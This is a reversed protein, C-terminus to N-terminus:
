PSAKPFTRTQLGTDMTLSSSGLLRFRNHRGDIVCKATIEFDCCLLLYYKHLIQWLTFPKNTYTGSYFTTPECPLAFWIACLYAAATLGVVLLKKNAVM